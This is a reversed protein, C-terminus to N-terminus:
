PEIEVKLDAGSKVAEYAKQFDEIKFVNTIIPKMDVAGSMVMQAAEQYDQRRYASSGCMKIEGYHILNPDIEAKM